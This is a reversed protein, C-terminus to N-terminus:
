IDSRSPKRHRELVAPSVRTEKVLSQRELSLPLPRYVSLLYREHQHHQQQHHRNTAARTSTAKSHRRLHKRLCQDGIKPWPAECSSYLRRLGERAHDQQMRALWENKMHATRRATLANESVRNSKHIHHNAVTRTPLFRDPHVRYQQRARSCPVLGHTRSGSQM